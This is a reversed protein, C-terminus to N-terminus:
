LFHMAGLNEDCSRTRFFESSCFNISSLLFSAQNLDDKNNEKNLFIKDETFIGEEEYNGWEFSFKDTFHFNFWALDKIEWAIRIIKGKKNSRPLPSLSKQSLSKQKIKEYQKEHQEFM